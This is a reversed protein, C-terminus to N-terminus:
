EEMEGEDEKEAEKDKKTVRNRIKFEDGEYTVKNDETNAHKFENKVLIEDLVECKSGQKTLIDAVIEEGQIWSYATVEEDELSQKLYAVSQRLAKEEIQGSSGISELLPRLDTFLRVKMKVNLLQSLQKAMHVGDDMLRLLARTEAAKPSVCVKRIVGSRWYMPGAKGTRQNGLMIMEGAVSRDYARKHGIM